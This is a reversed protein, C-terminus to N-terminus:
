AVRFVRGEVPRWPRGVEEGAGFFPARSEGLVGAGSGAIYEGARPRVRGDSAGGHAAETRKNEFNVAAQRAHPAAQPTGAPPHPRAPRGM